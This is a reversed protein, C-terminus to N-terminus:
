CVRKPINDKFENFNNVVFDIYCANCSTNHSFNGCTCTKICDYCCEHDCDSCIYLCPECIPKNCIECSLLIDKFCHLCFTQNCHLCIRLDEQTTLEGCDCRQDHVANCNYCIYEDQHRYIMENCEICLIYDEYDIM